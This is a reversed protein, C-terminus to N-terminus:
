HSRQWWDREDQPRYYELSDRPIFSLFFGQWPPLDPGSWPAYMLYSAMFSPGGSTLDCEFTMNFDGSYNKHLLFLVYFLPVYSLTLCAPDSPGPSWKRSSFFLVPFAVKKLYELPNMYQLMQLVNGFFWVFMKALGVSLLCVQEKLLHISALYPAIDLIITYATGMLRWSTISTISLCFRGTMPPLRFWIIEFFMIKLKLIWKIKFPFYFRESTVWLSAQTNAIGTLRNAYWSFSCEPSQALTLTNHHTWFQQSVWLPHFFFLCTILFLAVDLLKAHSREGIRSCITVLLEGVTKSDDVMVTKVSGDLM